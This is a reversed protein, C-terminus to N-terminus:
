AARRIENIADELCDALRRLRAVADYPDAPPLLIASRVVQKGQSLSFCLGQLKNVGAPELQFEVKMRVDM